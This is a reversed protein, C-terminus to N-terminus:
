HEYWSHENHWTEFFTQYYLLKLPIVKLYTFNQLQLVCECFLSQTTNQRLKENFRNRNKAGAQNCSFVAINVVFATLVWCNCARYSSSPWCQCEAILCNKHILFYLYRAFSTAARLTPAWQSAFFGQKAKWQLDIVFYM